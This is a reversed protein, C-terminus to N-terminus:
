CSLLRIILEKEKKFDVQLQLITFLQKVARLFEMDRSGSEKYTPAKNSFDKKTYSKGLPKNIVTSVKAMPDGSTEEQREFKDKTVLPEQVTDLNLPFINLGGFIKKAVAFAGTSVVSDDIHSRHFEEMSDLESELEDIHRDLQKLQKKLECQFNSFFTFASRFKEDYYCYDKIQGPNELIESFLLRRREESVMLRLYGFMYIYEEVGHLIRRLTAKTSLTDATSRIIEIRSLIQGPFAKFADLARCIVALYREPDQPFNRIAISASDQKQDAMIIDKPLDTRLSINYYGTLICVYKHHCHSIYSNVCSYDAQMVYNRFGLLAVYRADRKANRAERKANRAKRKASRTKRKANRMYILARAPSAAIYHMSQWLILLSDSNIKSCYTHHILM